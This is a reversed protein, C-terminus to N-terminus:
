GFFDYINSYPNTGSLNLNFYESFPIIEGGDKESLIYLNYCSLFPNILYNQIQPINSCCAMAPDGSANLDGVWYENGPFSNSDWAYSTLLLEKNGIKKCPNDKTFVIKIDKGKACKVIIDENEESVIWGMNITTINELNLSEVCSIFEEVFWERQVPDFMWVGLGIGTLYIYGNVGEKECRNQCDLLFPVLVLRLRKKYFGVNMFSVIENKGKTISKYFPSWFDNYEIIFSSEMKDELEFRPGILGYVIGSSQYNKKKSMVGMNNRNGDNIFFSPSSISLHASFIMEEYSLYYPDDINGFGEKGDQLLWYDKPGFFAIPRNKLLRNLFHELTQNTIECHEEFAPLVEENLLIKTEIFFRGYKSKLLDSVNEKIINDKTPYNFIDLKDKINNFVNIYNKRNLKYNELSKTYFTENVLAEEIEKKLYIKSFYYLIDEDLHYNKVFTAKESIDFISFLSNELRKNYVLCQEDNNISFFTENEIEFISFSEKEIEEKSAKDELEFIKFYWDLVRKHDLKKSKYYNKCFQEWTVELIYIDM